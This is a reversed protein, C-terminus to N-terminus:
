VTKGHGLYEMVGGGLTISKLKRARKKKNQTTLTADSALKKNNQRHSLLVAKEFQQLQSM